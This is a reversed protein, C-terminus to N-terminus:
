FCLFYQPEVKSVWRIGWVFPWYHSFRKWTMVDWSVKSVHGSFLYFTENFIWCLYFPELMKSDRTWCLCLSLASAFSSSHHLFLVLLFVVVNCLHHETSRCKVTPCISLITIRLFPRIYLCWWLKHLACIMWLSSHTCSFIFFTM